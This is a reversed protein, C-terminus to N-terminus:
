GGLDRQRRVRCQGVVLAEALVPLAGGHDLRPRYRSVDCRPSRQKRLQRREDPALVEVERSDGVNVGHLALDVRMPAETLDAHGPVVDLETAAADPLDLEEHLR